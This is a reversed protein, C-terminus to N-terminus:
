KLNILNGSPDRIEISEINLNLNRILQFIFELEYLLDDIKM